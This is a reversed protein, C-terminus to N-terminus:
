CELCKNLFFRTMWRMKGEGVRARFACLRSGGAGSGDGMFGHDCWMTLSARDPCLLPRARMRSERWAAAGPEKPRHEGLALREQGLAAVRERVVDEGGEREQGEQEARKDSVSGM